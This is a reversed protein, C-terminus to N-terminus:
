ESTMALWTPQVILDTFIKGMKEPPHPMDNELWWRMLAFVSAIMHNAAIPITINKEPLASLSSEAKERAMKMVPELIFYLSDDLLLVRFIKSNEQIHGFLTEGSKRFIAVPDSVNEEAEPLDLIEYLEDLREQALNLFLEDLGAYHRFYTRYGIDARDTVDQITINKYGKELVLAILAEGLLKQTRRVRRDKENM